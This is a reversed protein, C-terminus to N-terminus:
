CNGRVSGKITKRPQKWHMFTLYQSLFYMLLWQLKLRQCAQPMAKTEKQKKKKQLDVQGWECYKPYFYIQVSKISSLSVPFVTRVWGQWQQHSHCLQWQQGAVDVLPQIKCQIFGWPHLSGWHERIKFEWPISWQETPTALHFFFFPMNKSALSWLPLASTRRGSLLGGTRSCATFLWSQVSHM